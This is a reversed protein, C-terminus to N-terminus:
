YRVKVYTPGLEELALALRQAHTITTGSADGNNLTSTSTSWFAEWGGNEKTPWNKQEQVLSSLMPAMVQGGLVSGIEVARKLASLAQNNNNSENGQLFIPLKTKSSSSSSNESSANNIEEVMISELLDLQANNNTNSKSSSSSTTDTDTSGRSM